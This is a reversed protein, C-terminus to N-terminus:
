SLPRKDKILLPFSGVSGFFKEGDVEGKERDVERKERDVERGRV